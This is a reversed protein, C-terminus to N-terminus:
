SKPPNVLTLQSDILPAQLASGWANMKEAVLLCFYLTALEYYAIKQLELQNAINPFLSRQIAASEFTLM